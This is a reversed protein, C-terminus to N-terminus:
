PPDTSLLTWAVMQLLEANPVLQGIVNVCARAEVQAVQLVKFYGYSLSHQIVEVPAGAHILDLYTVMADQAADWDLVYHLTTIQFPTGRVGTKRTSEGRLGPRVIVELQQQKPQLQGRIDEFSYAGITNTHIPM